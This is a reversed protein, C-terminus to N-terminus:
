NNTIYSDSYPRNTISKVCYGYVEAIRAIQKITLPTRKMRRQTSHLTAPNGQNIRNDFYSTVKSIVLPDSVDGTSIPINCDCSDDCSCSDNCSCSDDCGYNEEDEEDYEEDVISAIPVWSFYGRTNNDNWRRTYNVIGNAIMKVIPKVIDHDIRQTSIGDINVFSLGDIELIGGNVKTRINKTINYASFECSNKVFANIEDRVANEMTKLM